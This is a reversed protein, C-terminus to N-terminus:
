PAVESIIRNGAAKFLRNMVAEGLGDTSFTESYIADLAQGDFARLADYLQRATSQPNDATGCTQIFDAHYFGQRGEAILIGVRQGNQRAANITQRFFAVSGQVITLPARPAYHTYKMGPSRPATQPGSVSDATNVTGIVAEIEARTIGGPRLIVPPTVTCDIVTSELGIQATGGDVIGAIKGDLDAAVHAATTPSPRGSVNASPAALPLGATRLLELAVPHSPLRVGVTALGATVLDSVGARKPLIITLAGPWFAAMLQRAADPIHAAITDAQATNGIHVILPNDAPRGKAAFIKAVACECTADAGLGYVTETPFAVVEGRRLCNAAQAITLTHNM